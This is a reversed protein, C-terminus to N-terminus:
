DRWWFYGVIVMISIAYWMGGVAVKFGLPLNMRSLIRYPTTVYASLYYAGIGIPSSKFWKTISRFINVDTEEGTSPSVGTEPDPLMQMAADDSLDAQSLDECNGTIKNFVGDTCNYFKTVDTPSIDAIAQDVMFFITNLVIIFVFAYTFNSM